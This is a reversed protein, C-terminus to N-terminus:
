VELLPIEKFILLIFPILNSLCFITNEKNIPTM